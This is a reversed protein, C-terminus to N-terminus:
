GIPPRKRRRIAVFSGAIVVLLVLILAVADALSFGSQQHSVPLSATSGTAVQSPSNVISGITAVKVSTVIRFSYSTGPSLGTITYNTDLKSSLIALTSWNGSSLLMQVTYGQFSTQNSYVDGNIWSLSATTETTGAVAVRMYSSTYTQLTNTRPYSGWDAVLYYWYRAATSSNVTTVECIGASINEVNTFPGNTGNVSEYLSYFYSNVVGPPNTPPTLNNWEITITTQTHGISWVEFSTQASSLPISFSVAAIGILLISASIAYIKKM